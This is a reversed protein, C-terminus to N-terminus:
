WNKLYLSYYKKYEVYKSENAKLKSNLEFEFKNDSKSRQYLLEFTNRTIKISNADFYIERVYSIEMVNSVISDTMERISVILKMLNKTKAVSQLIESDTKFNESLQIVLIKLNPLYLNIDELLNACMQFDLALCKLKKCDKLSEIKSFIKPEIMKIEDNTIILKELGIYGSFLGFINEGKSFPVSYPIILGLYKLNKYNLGNSILKKDIVLDLELVRICIHLAELREFRSLEVLYNNFNSDINLHIKKIQKHYIETFEKFRKFNLDQPFRPFSIEKLKSFLSKNILGLNSYFLCHITELNPTLPFIKMMDQPEFSNMLICKLKQGFKTVFKEMEQVDSIDGSSTITKLHDCNDILAEFLKNNRPKLILIEEIFRFKQLLKEFLTKNTSINIPLDIVDKKNGNCSIIIKQQKNYILSKWQKSVCELRIKDSISLYSILVGCLDDGFREFSNFYFGDRTKHSM